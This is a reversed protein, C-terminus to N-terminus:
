RAYSRAGHASPPLTRSRAREVWGGRPARLEHLAGDPLPDHGLPLTCKAAHCSRPADHQTPDDDRSCASLPGDHRIDGHWHGTVTLRLERREVDVADSSPGHRHYREHDPRYM